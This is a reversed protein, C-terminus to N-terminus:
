RLVNELKPWSGSIPDRDIVPAPGGRTRVSGGIQAAASAM